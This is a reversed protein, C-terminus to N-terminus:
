PPMSIARSSFASAGLAVIIQNKRRQRQGSDRGGPAPLRHKPKAIFRSGIGEAQYFKKAAGAFVDNGVAGIFVTAAGARGAAVAQNSGKGGPGTVFQGIVTQGAQPFEGCKWTLDQVFSGGVVM